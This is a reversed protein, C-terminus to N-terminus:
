VPQEPLGRLVEERLPGTTVVNGPEGSACQASAGGSGGDVLVKPAEGVLRHQGGKPRVADDVGGTPVVLPAVFM